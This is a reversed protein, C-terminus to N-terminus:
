YPKLSALKESDIGIDHWYIDFEANPNESKSVRWGMVQKAVEEILPYETGVCFLTIVTCLM